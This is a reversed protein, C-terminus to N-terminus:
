SDEESTEDETSTLDEVVEDMSSPEEVSEEEAPQEDGRNLFGWIAAVAGMGILIWGSIAQLDREQARFFFILIGWLLLLANILVPGWGFGRGSRAFFSAYLGLAGVIIVGIAFITFDWRTPFLDVFYLLLIVAGVIVGIIGRYRSVTGRGRFLELVATILIYLGAILAFNGAASDGGFLLYLGLLIAIIGEILLVWWSRGNDM